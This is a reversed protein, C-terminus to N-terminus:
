LEVTAVQAMEGMALAVAAQSARACYSYWNTRFPQTKASGSSVRSRSRSSNSVLPM